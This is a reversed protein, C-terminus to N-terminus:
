WTFDKHFVSKCCAIIQATNRWNCIHQIERKFTLICFFSFSTHLDSYNKFPFAIWQASGGQFSYIQMLCTRSSPSPSQNLGNHLSKWWRLHFARFPLAPHNNRGEGGKHKDGQHCPFQEGARTQQHPCETIPVPLSQNPSLSPQHHAHGTIPISPSPPVWHHPHMAHSSSAKPECRASTQKTQIFSQM